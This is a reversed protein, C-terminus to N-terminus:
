CIAFLEIFSGTSDGKVLTGLAPGNCNPFLGMNFFRIITGPDSFLDKQCNQPGSHVPGRSNFFDEIVLTEIILEIRRLRIRTSLVTAATMRRIDAVVGFAQYEKACHVSKWSHIQFTNDM